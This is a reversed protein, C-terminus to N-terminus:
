GQQSQWDNLHTLTQLKTIEVKGTTLFELLRRYEDAYHVIAAESLNYTGYVMFPPLYHMGCLGAMQEFPRLLDTMSFHNSGEACYTQRSGGTSIVSAFLKGRLSRGESGYAFGYGLVLDQWEKLLSPSSYWYLPHQFVILDYDQLLAQERNVDILFDPYHEYLDHVYVGDVSRAAQVLRIQVRSKELAPHALLVLIRKM